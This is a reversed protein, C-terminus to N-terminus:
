FFSIIQAFSVPTLGTLKPCYIQRSVSEALTRYLSDRQSIKRSTQSCAVKYGNIQNTQVEINNM